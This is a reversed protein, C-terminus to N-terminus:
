AWVGVVAHMYLHSCPNTTSVLTSVSRWRRAAAAPLGRSGCHNIWFIKIVALVSGSVGYSGDEGPRRGNLHERIIAFCRQWLRYRRRSCRYVLMMRHQATSSQLRAKFHMAGTKDAHGATLLRRGRWRQRLSHQGTAPACFLLHCQPLMVTHAGTYRTESIQGIRGHPKWLPSFMQLKGTYGRPFIYLLLLLWM